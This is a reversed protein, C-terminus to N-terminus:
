SKRGKILGRFFGPKKRLSKDLDIMMELNIKPVAKYFLERQGMKEAMRDAKAQVIHDIKEEWAEYDADELVGEGDCIPCTDLTAPDRVPVTILDHLISRDDPKGEHLSKIRHQVSFPNIETWANLVEYLRDLQEGDLDYEYDFQEMEKAFYEDVGGDGNCFMCDQMKDGWQRTFYIYCIKLFTPTQM